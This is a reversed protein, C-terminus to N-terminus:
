PHYSEEWKIKELFWHQGHGDDQPKSIYYKRGDHTPMDLYWFKLCLILIEIIVNNKLFSFFGSHDHDKIMSEIVYELNRKNDISLGYIISTIKSKEINSTLFKQFAVEYKESNYESIRSFLSTQSKLSDNKKEIKM